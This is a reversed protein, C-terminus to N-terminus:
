VPGIDERGSGEVETVNVGGTEGVDGFGFVNNRDRRRSSVRRANRKKNRMLTANKPVPLRADMADNLKREM